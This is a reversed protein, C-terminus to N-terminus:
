TAPKDDHRQKETMPREIMGSRRRVSRDRTYVDLLTIFKKPRIATPSPATNPAQNRQPTESSSLGTTGVSGRPVSATLQRPPLRTPIAATSNGCCADQGGSTRRSITVPKRPAEVVNEVKEASTMSRNRRSWYRHPMVVAH